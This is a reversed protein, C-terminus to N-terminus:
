ATSSAPDHRAERRRLGQRRGRVRRGDSPGPRSWVTEDAFGAPVTAGAAAVPTASLPCCPPSSSRAGRRILRPPPRPDHHVHGGPILVQTGDAVPRIGDVIGVRFRHRASGSRDDPRRGVADGSRGGRPTSAAAGPVAARRRRGRAVCLIGGSVVAFQPGTLAAVVAAEIDGLRPGSTVVLIHISM